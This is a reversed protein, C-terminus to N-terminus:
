YIIFSLRGHILKEDLFGFWRSDQSNKRSDGMVWYKGEPVRIPGFVDVSEKGNADKFSETYPKRIFPYGPIAIVESKEMYYFPQEEFSKSPDYTYWVGTGGHVVRKQFLNLIPIERIFDFDLFGTEKKLWILPLKNVYPEDLKKNNVYIVTKDDEVRGEIWDGPCAIVRKVMNIPGSEVGLIPIPLGVYKQWAFKLWNSKDYKHQPNDFIVLDNRKVKDFVYALKNGWVRDGVLITPEASGTPVHYLGFIFHRLILAVLGAILLAEIWQRWAPKVSESLQKHMKKFLKMRAKVATEKVEAGASAFLEKIEQGEKELKELLAQGKEHWSDKGRDAWKEIKSKYLPKKASFKSYMAEFIRKLRNM